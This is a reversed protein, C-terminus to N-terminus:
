ANLDLWHEMSMVGSPLGQEASGEAEASYWATELAGSEALSAFPRPESGRGAQSARSMGNARSLLLSLYSM